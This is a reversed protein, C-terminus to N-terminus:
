SSFLVKLSPWASALLIGLVTVGGILVDSLSSRYCTQLTTENNQDHTRM